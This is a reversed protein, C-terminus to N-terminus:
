FENKCSFPKILTKGMGLYHTDTMSLPRIKEMDPRGREDLLDENVKLSMVQGIFQTHSGMELTHIVKCEVILPFEGVYPAHVFRGEVPTLGTKDFKKVNRGSVIGVYDAQRVFEESPINLTYAGERMINEYTLTAKRLSVYMAPPHIAVTGAIGTTMINPSGDENYSGVVVVPSPFAGIAPGLDKKAKM